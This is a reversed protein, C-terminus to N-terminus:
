SHSHELSSTLLNIYRLIFPWWIILHALEPSSVFLSEPTQCVDGCVTVLSASRYIAVELHCRLLGIGRGGSRWWEVTVMASTRLVQTIHACDRSRDASWPSRIMGRASVVRKPLRLKRMAPGEVQFPRGEFMRLALVLSCNLRLRFLQSNSHAYPLCSARRLYKQIFVRRVFKGEVVVVWPVISARAIRRRQDAYIGPSITYM